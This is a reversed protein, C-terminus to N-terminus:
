VCMAETGSSADCNCHRSSIRVCLMRALLITQISIEVIQMLRMFGVSFCQWAHSTCTDVPIKQVAPLSRGIRDRIFCHFKRRLQVLIREPYLFFTVFKGEFAVEPDVITSEKLSYSHLASIHRHKKDSPSSGTEHMSYRLCVSHASGKIGRDKQVCCVFIVDWLISMLKSGLAKRLQNHHTAIAYEPTIEFAHM